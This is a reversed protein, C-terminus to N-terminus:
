PAESINPESKIIATADWLAMKEDNFLNSFSDFVMGMLSSETWAITSEM